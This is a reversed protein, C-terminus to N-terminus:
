WERSSRSRAPSCSVNSLTAATLPQCGVIVPSPSGSGSTPSCTEKSYKVTRPMAGARPRSKVSCSSLGPEARTAIMECPRQIRRKPASGPTIPRRHREVALAVLDDPDHRFAEPRREHRVGLQPPRVASDARRRVRVTIRARDSSEPGAESSARARSEVGEGFAELLCVRLWVAAHPERHRHVLLVDAVRVDSNMSCPATPKTSSMAQTLIAFRSSDRADPRTRSIATRRASPASRIRMTRCNSVSLRSSATTPPPSPASSPTHPTEASFLMSGDPVGACRRPRCRRGRAPTRRAAVSAVPM